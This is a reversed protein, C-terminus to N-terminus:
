PMGKFHEAGLASLHRELCHLELIADDLRAKAQTKLGEDLLEEMRELMHRINWLAQKAAIDKLMM